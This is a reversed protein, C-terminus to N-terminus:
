TPRLAKGQGTGKREGQELAVVGNVVVATIGVPYRFPNEYTAVDAVSAPDFVVVDAAFDHALQGRGKLRLRRAAHSSMKAIADPLSLAKRERVYRGLVRACPGIGRPHPSGRHTPGDSAYGSGDTCVMALPHALIRELNAESMAFGVMGVGGKSRRLLGLTTEYPDLGLSTAYQGLRKGEAPRDADSRVSTVEVNDWGGLGAVKALTAAKIRPAVSPDDLRALFADTGGDRSWIPFLNTLGTSYALYPYRDFTVDMGRKNAAAIRAFADDLKPWNAQGQMKLHSIELPCGAGEAVAIAEDMAELVHDDENRMHTAYPLKRSALSRCLAILEDRSAFGGPTYELGSSAGCAGEALSREVMTTM